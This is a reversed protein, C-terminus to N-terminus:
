NEYFIAVDVFAFVFTPDFKNQDLHFNVSFFVLYFFLFFSHFQFRMSSRWDAGRLMASPVLPSNKFM